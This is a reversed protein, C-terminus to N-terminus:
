IEKKLPKIAFGSYGTMLSCTFQFEFDQPIRRTFIMKWFAKKEFKPRVGLLSKVQMNHKLCMSTLESPKIFLPYVHMNKPTNKVCWEVGKIIILWSLFNRNFTHFFFLGGPKLVRTAEAVVKEPDEVHELLDMAAVVDFSNDEFCLTTGNGVQYHVSGTSDQSRAVDLSKSSLDVGYVTHGLRALFNTLFGAGCGIDLVKSQPPITKALWPNRLANEARLLAIPHSFDENWGTGLEDYFANNIKM